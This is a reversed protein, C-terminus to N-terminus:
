LPYDVAMADATTAPASAAKNSNKAAEAAAAKEITENDAWKPHIVCGQLKYPKRCFKYRGKGRGKWVCYNQDALRPNVREGAGIWTNRGGKLATHGCYGGKCDSRGGDWFCATCKPYASWNEGKDIPIWKEKKYATLGDAAKGIVPMVEKCVHYANIRVEGMCFSMGNRSPMRLFEGASRSGGRRAAHRSRGSSRGARYARRKRASFDTANSAIETDDYQDEAAVEVESLGDTVDDYPDAPNLAVLASQGMGLESARVTMEFPLPNQPNDQGELNFAITVLGNTESVVYYDIGGELVLPRNAAGKVVTGDQAVVETPNLTVPRTLTYWQNLIFMMGSNQNIQTGLLNSRSVNSDNGFNGTELAANASLSTFAVFLRIATKGTM